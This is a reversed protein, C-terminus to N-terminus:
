SHNEVMYFLLLGNAFKDLFSYAGYVFASQETDNGIVDSILSTATNIMILLGVGQIGFLVYVAKQNGSHLYALPLSGLTIIVLAVM